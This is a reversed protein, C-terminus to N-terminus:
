NLFFDEDLSLQTELSITLLVERQASLCQADSVYLACIWLRTVQLLM